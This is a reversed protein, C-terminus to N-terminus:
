EHRGCPCWKIDIGTLGCEDDEPVYPSYNPNYGKSILLEMGEDSDNIGHRHILEVFGDNMLSDFLVDSLGCRRMSSNTIEEIESLIDNYNTM